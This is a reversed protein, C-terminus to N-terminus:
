ENIYIYIYIANKKVHGLCFISIFELLHRGITVMSKISCNIGNLWDFLIVLGPTFSSYPIYARSSYAVVYSYM